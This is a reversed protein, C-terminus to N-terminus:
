VRDEAANELMEKIWSEKDAPVYAEPWIAITLPKLEGQRGFMLKQRAEKLGYSPSVWGEGVEAMWDGAELVYVIFAAAASVVRWQQDKDPSLAFGPAFHYPILTDHRGEGDFRDAVLLGHTLKNLVITRIPTVPRSFRQYGAHSGIFVDAEEGTRWLTALPAADDHLAFLEDDSVFRNQEAGDIMPISHSATSRFLNRWKPSQSYVFSGSDTILDVGNLAAEFSLCDNHGHGGRGGYGVPGCDIFVTDGEGRMVYVGGAPFAESKPHQPVVDLAAQAAEPGLGWVLEAGAAASVNSSLPGGLSMSILLPLYSHDAFPQAGFIYARGDDADGWLPSLGNDRTYAGTFEGMLRLRQLYTEPAGKGNVRRYLAPWLFLEAVMRHYSASGEFDVGDPHVQRFMEQVLIRWGKQEWLIARDGDCFFEGAFVLAAADATLHNGNIGFDELYRECFDAHDYLSCLFQAQFPEDRWATSGKFVHFLWTWAFIRMAAEMAVAWNVSRAYPNAAIWDSILERVFVAYKGDGTLQYAQAVPIAWQLRSLEWPVKVDCVSGPKLIDIDRFFAPPWTVNNKFDTHWDIKHDLARPGSGLLDVQGRMALDAADLIRASEGPIIKDLEAAPLSDHFIPHSGAAISQWLEGIGAANFTVALGKHGLRASPAGRLRDAM